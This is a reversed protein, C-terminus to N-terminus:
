NTKLLNKSRQLHKPLLKQLYPDNAISDSVDISGDTVYKERDYMILMLMCLASIRDFNGDINWLIAEKIAAMCKFRHIQMEEPREPNGTKELWYNALLGRSYANLLKGPTTGKPRSNSTNSEPSAEKEVRLKDCILHYCNKSEFYTFIGRNANEINAIANYYLLGRRCKEYFDFARAPRGTYEAVIRKTWLDAIFMSGLSTTGSEDFDYSDIGAVYRNYFVEGKSDVKPHEHIIFSGQMNKNDLHPFSHIPRPNQEHVWDFKQTDLDLAFDAYFEAEKYLHPKTEIEAEQQKLELIPFQTGSIRMLMESVTRPLEATRRIVASPDGAKKVIELEKDILMDARVIDSVGLENYAGKYNLNAPFFFGNETNEMGPDTTNKVPHIRYARPNKMLEHFGMSSAGETGGTGVHMILGFTVNGDEMGPRLTQHLKDLNRFNGSEELLILKGRKGRMKNYDDGVTVGIIDSMWGGEREVGKSDKIKVSSRRHLHTNHVQRRKAWPTHQDVFDMAEWTKSLTGDAGTLYSLDSAVVFNNSGRIHFYNRNLMAAGFFSKSKGRSGAWFAHEGSLEAENIYNSVQHHGDWFDPFERVRNGSARDDTENTVQVLYIPQYNLYWYFYGTIYDSGIHFGELSRRKEEEWFAIWSPSGEPLKTYCKYEQFHSRTALIEDLERKNM